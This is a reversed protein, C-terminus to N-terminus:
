IGTPQVRRTKQGWCDLSQRRRSSVMSTLCSSGSIQWNMWVYRSPWWCAASSRAEAEATRKESLQLLKLATKLRMEVLYSAPNCGRSITRGCGTSVYRGTSCCCSVDGAGRQTEEPQLVQRNAGLVVHVDVVNLEHLVDVHVAGLELPQQLTPGGSPYIVCQAM